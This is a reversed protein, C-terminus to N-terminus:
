FTSLCVNPCIHGHYMYQIILQTEQLDTIDVGCQVWVFLCVFIQSPKWSSFWCTIGYLFICSYNIQLPKIFKMRLYKITQQSNNLPKIKLYLRSPYVSHTRRPGSFHASTVACIPSEKSSPGSWAKQETLTSWKHKLGSFSSYLFLM